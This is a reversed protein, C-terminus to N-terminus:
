SGSFFYQDIIVASGGHIRIERREIKYDSIRVATDGLMQEQHARFDNFNLIENPDGRKM